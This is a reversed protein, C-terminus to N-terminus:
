FFEDVPPNNIKLWGESFSMCLSPPTYIIYPIDGLNQSFHAMKFKAAHHAEM